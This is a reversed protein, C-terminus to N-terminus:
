NYVYIAQNLGKLRKGWFFLKILIRKFKSKDEHRVKQAQRLGHVVHTQIVHSEETRMRMNREMVAAVALRFFLSGYVVAGDMM